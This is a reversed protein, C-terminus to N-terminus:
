AEAAAVRNRGAHKARYLARDAARFLDGFETCSEPWCAVGVSVTLHEPVAGGEGAPESAVARRLAEARETAEASTAGPLLVAFEEGGYRCVTDSGRFHRALVRSLMKLAEDGAEHGYTDNFRKFHDIDLMLLSLSRGSRRSVEQEHRFLEDFHRRNKLGTLGDEYSFRQLEERLALGSLTIGLKEVSQYVWAVVRVTGYGKLSEPLRPHALLLVGEPSGGTLGPEVRLLFCLSDPLAQSRLPLTTEKLSPLGRDLSAPFASEAAPGWIAEHEYSGDPRRRYFSGAMPMYLGPLARALLEFAEELVACDQIGSILDALKQSKRSELALLRSRAAEREALAEARATREAVKQELQVTMQQLAQQTRSFHWVSISVVALAFALAGWSAPVLWGWPLFGHAVAMDAILLVAFLGCAVLLIQQERYLVRFRLAASGVLLVLSVLLLGDFVLFASSLNILGSLSALLALVAFGLHFKWLWGLVAPSQHALWQQLLLALTVPVLFYSGAALYDWLLPQYAILLSAPTEAVLMTATVLSFLAISAFGMPGRQISAFILALLAILGCITAIVLSKASRSVLHQVLDLHDLIAVEGWLGIDTYNSFVRFYVTEGEYNEPLPIEHWPWGEFRGRGQEDFTGYQYLLEGQFWAQVIIDVSYIYLMPSFREGEPLTVRFWAHERGARDPPNSPFGIDHWQGPEDQVIWQPTGDPMLPSDGWRYQWGEDVPQMAAQVTLPLCLLVFSALFALLSFRNAARM